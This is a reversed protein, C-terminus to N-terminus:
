AQPAESEGWFEYFNCWQYPYRSCTAELLDVYRGLIERAHKERERRAVRVPDSLPRLITRYAGDDERVCLAVFVPCELMCALLFPGLPFRAPRGLFGVEATRGTRGPPIRDALMVVFEGRDICAKIEFVARVSHPDLDIVRPQNERGLSEFFDNIRQANEYFAVINMKLDHHESICSLMDFSGVHAGLLLAGRGERALDFVQGSGDHELRMTDLAGGWVVMRDYMNLAFEHTHRIAALLGPRRGLAARGEPSSWLRELYQLSGRRTHENRLVFYLAPLWLVLVGIRRGFTRHFWAGFRLGRMTGSEAIAAWRNESM